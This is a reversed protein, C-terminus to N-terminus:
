SVLIKLLRRKSRVELKAGPNPFSVGNNVAPAANTMSGRSPEVRNSKRVSQVPTAGLEAVGFLQKAPEMPALMGNATCASPKSLAALACSAALQGAGPDTGFNLM